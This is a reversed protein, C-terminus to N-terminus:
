FGHLYLSACVRHDTDIFGGGQICVVLLGMKQGLCLDYEDDVLVSTDYVKGTRILKGGTNVPVQWSIISVAEPKLDGRRWAHINSTM